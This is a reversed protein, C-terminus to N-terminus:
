PGWETPIRYGVMRHDGTSVVLGSHAARTEYSHSERVRAFVAAQSDPLRDNHFKWTHMRLQQRYLDGVKLIGYKGFLPDV